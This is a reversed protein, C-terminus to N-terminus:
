GLMKQYIYVDLRKGFKIGVEKLTGALVFGADLNLHQSEVSGEAVRAILTHFKLRKAEAITAEKLLRGIGQGRHESKVYFSTEACDDYAPRDSWKTLSSWGVVEGDRLAVLVPYRERHEELWRKRDEVSKPETDFTATTTLIAENYIATIAPVDRVDARRIEVNGPSRTPPM